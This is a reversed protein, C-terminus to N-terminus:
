GLTRSRGGESKRISLISTAFISEFGGAQRRSLASSFRAIMKAVISKLITSLALGSSKYPYSLPLM